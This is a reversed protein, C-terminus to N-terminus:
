IQTSFLDIVRAEYSSLIKLFGYSSYICNKGYTLSTLSLILSHDLMRRTSKRGMTRRRRGLRIGGSGGGRNGGGVGCGIEGRKRGRRRQRVKGFGVGVEELGDTQGEILEELVLFLLRRIVEDHGDQLRFRFGAVARGRQRFGGLLM